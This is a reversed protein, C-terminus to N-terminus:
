TSKSQFQMYFVFCPYVTAYCLRFVAQCLDKLRDEEIIAWHWPTSLLNNKIIISENLIFFFLSMNNIIVIQCILKTEINYIYIKFLPYVKRTGCSNLCFIGRSCSILIRMVRSNCKPTFCSNCNLEGHCTFVLKNGQSDVNYKKNFRSDSPTCERIGETL